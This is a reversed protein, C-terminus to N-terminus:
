VAPQGGDAARYHKTFNLYSVLQVYIIFFGACYHGHIIHEMNQVMVMKTFLHVQFCFLVCLDCAFWLPNHM